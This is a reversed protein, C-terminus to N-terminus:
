QGAGDTVECVAMILEFLKTQTLLRLESVVENTIKYNVKIAMVGFSIMENWDVADGEKATLIFETWKQSDNYLGHFQRQVEWHWTGDDQLIADRPLAVAKPILWENGDSLALHKGPEQYVRKLDKPTPPRDKWIGVWYRGAKLEGKPVAPKWSQEEPKYGTIADGSDPWSIVVGVGDPGESQQYCANAILDSLGVGKLAAEANRYDTGPIFVQFRSM